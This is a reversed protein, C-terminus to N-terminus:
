RLEIRLRLFFRELAQSSSEVRVTDTVSGDGNNSSDVLVTSEEPLWNILDRSSEISYALDGSGPRRRYRLAPHVVSGDPVMILDPLNGPDPVKPDSVLAYELLNSMGDSDLDVADGSIDPDTLEGTTFVDNKWGAFTAVPEAAGPSGGVNVSATWSAPDAHDPSSDPGVLVLSFGSGDADSPWPDEDM